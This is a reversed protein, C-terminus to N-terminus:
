RLQHLRKSNGRFISIWYGVNGTYTIVSHSQSMLWTIALLDRTFESRSSLMKSQHIVSSDATVPLVDLAFSRPGLQELLFDRIQKQDTQVWVRLNQHARLIRRARRLYSKLPSPKVESSKDTGRLCIVLVEGVPAPLHHTELERVRDLVGNSLRFYTDRIEKAVRYDLLGYLSHHPLLRALRSRRWAGPDVTVNKPPPSFYQNWEFPRGSDTFHTFSSKADIFIPHQPANALNMLLVSCNSFFGSDHLLSIKKGELVAFDRRSPYGFLRNRIRKLLNM